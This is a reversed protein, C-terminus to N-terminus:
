PTHFLKSSLVAEVREKLAKAREQLGEIRERISGRLGEDKLNNLNIIVNSVGGKLAAEALYLAVAADSIASPNGREVLTECLSLLRLADEIVELPPEIAEKYAEEIRRSRQERQSPTEKPLRYAELVRRFAEVDKAMIELSRDKISLAEKLIREMEGRVDEFGKKGVTLNAVMCILSASLAAALASVSGGGPVPTGASLDELFRSLTVEKM